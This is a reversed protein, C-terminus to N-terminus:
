TRCLKWFGRQAGAAALVGLRPMWNVQMTTLRTMLLHPDLIAQGVLPLLHQRRHPAVLITMVRRHIAKIVTGM